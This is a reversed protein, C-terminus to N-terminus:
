QVLTKDNLRYLRGDASVWETGRDDRYIQHIATTLQPTPLPEVGKPTIRALLVKTVFTSSVLVSGNGEDVIAPQQMDSPLPVTALTTDRFQDLGNPTLAWVSGERISRLEM